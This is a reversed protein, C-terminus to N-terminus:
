LNINFTDNNEMGYRRFKVKNASTYLITLIIPLINLPKQNRNYIYGIVYFIRSFTSTCTFSIISILTKIDTLLFKFVYEYQMTFLFFMLVLVSFTLSPDLINLYLEMCAVAYSM